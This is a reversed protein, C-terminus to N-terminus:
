GGGNTCGSPCAMLEVYDYDCKGQKIKRMINQINRFGYAQAFKLLTIGDSGDTPKTRLVVEKLDKNKGQIYELPQDDEVLKVQSADFLERQARRFVYELYGNSQRNFVASSEARFTSAQSLVEALISDNGVNKEGVMEEDAGDLDLTKLDVDFKKFLDLLEHTALVTDVEMLERYQGLKKDEEGM